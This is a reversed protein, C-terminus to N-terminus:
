AVLTLRSHRARTRHRSRERRPPSTQARTSPSGSAISSAAARQRRMDGRVCRSACRTPTRAPKRHRAAIQGRSMLRDALGDRPAHRQEVRALPSHEAAHGDERATAGSAAASHTQASSSAGRSTREVVHACEDIRTQEHTVIGARSPSGRSRMSSVTRSTASSSSSCPARLGVRDALRWASQYGRSAVDNAGVASRRIVARLASSARGALVRVETGRQLPHDACSSAVSRQREARREPPVPEHATM